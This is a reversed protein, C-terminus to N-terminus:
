WKSEAATNFADPTGRRIGATEGVGAVTCTQRASGGEASATPGASPDVVGGRGAHQHWGTKAEEEGVSSSTVVLGNDRGKRHAVMMGKFEAFDGVAMLIDSVDDVVEGQREAVMKMFTEMEFGRIRQRLWGDLHREVLRTYQRFLDTYILRNEEVDEFERLLQQPIYAGCWEDVFVQQLSAFAPDMVAEELAGVISDFRQDEESGENSAFTEEEEGIEDMEGGIISYEQNLDLEGM